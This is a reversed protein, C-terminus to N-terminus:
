VCKTMQQEVYNRLALGSLGFGRGAEYFMATAKRVERQFRFQQGDKRKEKLAPRKATKRGRSVIIM